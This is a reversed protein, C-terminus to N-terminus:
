MYMRDDPYDRSGLPQEGDSISQMRESLETYYQKLEESRRKLEEADVSVDYIDQIADLLLLAADLDPGPPHAPTVYIGVPPARDDLSRTIIEGAVGDLIGGGLPQVDTDDLRRTRYDPTSVHFVSHEDPGHPYPVGHLIAIEEIPESDIWDIIADAFAQAAWVPVFLEGVLVSIDADPLHYLRTHHRPEGNQFPAIAPFEDPSIHGIEEADTHRVLYDVASLGAMGSHSLGVVLSRGPQQDGSVTVEFTPDPVM